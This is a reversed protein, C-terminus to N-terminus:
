ARWAGRVPQEAAINVLVDSDEHFGILKRGACILLGGGFPGDADYIGIDGLMMAAPAIPELFSGILDDLTAYGQGRMQRYAGMATSYRPAPLVHGFRGLHAHAVRYCDLSRWDFPLGAFEDRTAQTHAARTVLDFLVCRGILAKAHVM